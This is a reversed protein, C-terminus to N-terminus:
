IILALFFNYQIIYYKTGGKGNAIAISNCIVEDILCYDLNIIDTGHPGNIVVNTQNNGDKLTLCAIDSYNTVKNDISTSLWYSEGNDTYFSFIM